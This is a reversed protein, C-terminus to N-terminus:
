FFTSEITNKQLYKQIRREQKQVIQREFYCGDRDDDRDYGRTREGDSDERVQEKGIQLM